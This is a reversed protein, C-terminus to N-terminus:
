LKFESATRGMLIPYELTARRMMGEPAQTSWGFEVRLAYPLSNQIVVEKGNYNITWAAKLSGPKYGAHAPWKWLSPDGVPTYFEIREKLREAVKKVTHDVAGETKTAHSRVDKAWKEIDVSVSVAM